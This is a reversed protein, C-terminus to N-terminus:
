EGQAPAASPIVRVEMLNPDVEQRQKILDIVDTDLSSNFPKILINSKLEETPQLYNQYGKQAIIVFLTLCSIISILVFYTSITKKNM